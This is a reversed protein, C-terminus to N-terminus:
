SYLSGEDLHSRTIRTMKPDVKSITKYGCFQALFNSTTKLKSWMKITLWFHGWSHCPQTRFPLLELKGNRPFPMNRFNLEVGSLHEMISRATCKLMVLSCVSSLFREIKLNPCTNCKHCIYNNQSLSRPSLVCLPPDKWTCISHCINM